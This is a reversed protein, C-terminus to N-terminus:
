PTLVIGNYGNSRDGSSQDERMVVLIPGTAQLLISGEWGVPLISGDNNPVTTANQHFGEIWNPSLSFSRSHIQQGSGGTFYLATVTVGSSHLNRVTYGTSRGNAQHAAYPLVIVKGGYNSANFSYGGITVNNADRNLNNIVVALPQNNLSEIKLSGRWGNAVPVGTSDLFLGAALNAPLASFATHSLCPTSSTSQFCYTIKVDTAASGLNQVILGTTLGYINRYAAPVYLSTSGVTTGEFSRGIFTSTGSTENVKVAMKQSASIRLSGVWSTPSISNTTVQWVGNPAIANSATYNGYGSRGYFDVTYSASASGVNQIYVTSNTNGFINKYFAPAYVTTGVQEFAPDGSSARLSNDFNAVGTSDQRVL